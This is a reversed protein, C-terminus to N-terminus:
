ALLRSGDAALGVEVPAGYGSRPLALEDRGHDLAKGLLTRLRATAAPPAAAGGAAGLETALASMSNGYREHQAASDPGMAAHLAHEEPVGHAALGVRAPHRAPGRVLGVAGDGRDELPWGVGDLREDVEAAAAGAM